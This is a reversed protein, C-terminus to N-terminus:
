RIIAYKGFFHKLMGPIDPPNKIKKGCVHRQTHMLSMASVRIALQNHLYRTLNSFLAM